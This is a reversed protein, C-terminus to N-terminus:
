IEDGLGPRSRMETWLVEETLAPDLFDELSRGLIDFHFEAMIQWKLFSRLHPAQYPWTEENLLVALRDGFDDEPAEGRSSYTAAWDAFGESKWVPLARSKRFGRERLNVFHAVEHAIVHAISGEFRSHPIPEMGLREFATLGAESIFINGATYLGFGQSKPNLRTLKAFFAYRRPNASYFVRYRRDSDPSEIAAIRHAAEQLAARLEISMPLDAYLTLRDAEVKGAFFPQPFFVLGIWAIIAVLVLLFLILLAKLIKPLIVEDGEDFM